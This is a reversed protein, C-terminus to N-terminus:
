KFMCTNKLFAYRHIFDGVAEQAAEEGEAIDNSVKTSTYSFEVRVYNFDPLRM